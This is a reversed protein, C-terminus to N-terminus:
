PTSYYSKENAEGAQRQTSTPQTYYVVLEAIHGNHGTSTNRSGVYRTPLTAAGRTGAVTATGNTAGNKYYTVTTSNPDVYSIQGLATDYAGSPGGTVLSTGADNIFVTSYALSNAFQAFPAYKASTGGNSEGYLDQELTASTSHDAVALITCGALGSGSSAVSLYSSSGLFMVAPRGNVTEVVGANVIRPQNAQTAQTVNV